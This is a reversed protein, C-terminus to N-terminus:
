DKKNYNMFLNKTDCRSRKQGRIMSRIFNIKEKKKRNYRLKALKLVLQKNQRLSKWIWIYDILMMEMKKLIQIQRM